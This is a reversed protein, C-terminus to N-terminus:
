VFGPNGVRKTVGYFDGPTAITGLLTAKYCSKRKERDSELHSLRKTCISCSKYRCLMVSDINPLWSLFNAHGRRELIFTIMWEDFNSQLALPDPYITTMLHFVSLPYFTNWFNSAYMWLYSWFFSQDATVCYLQNIVYKTNTVGKKCKM